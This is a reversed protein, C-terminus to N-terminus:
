SYALRGSISHRLYVNCAIYGTFALGSVSDDDGAVAVPSVICKNETNQAIPMTLIMNSQQNMTRAPTCVFDTVKRGTRKIYWTLWVRCLPVSQTQACSRLPISEHQMLMGFCSNYQCKVIMNHRALACRVHHPHTDSHSLLHHHVRMISDLEQSCGASCDDSYDDAMTEDTRDM